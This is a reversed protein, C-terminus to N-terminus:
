RQSWFTVARRMNRQHESFDAGNAALLGCSCEIFDPWRKVVKHEHAIVNAVMGDSKIPCFMWESIRQWGQENLIRDAGDRADIPERAEWTALTAERRSYSSLHLGDISIWATTVAAM